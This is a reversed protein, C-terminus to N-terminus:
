TRFRISSYLYSITGMGYVCKNNKRPIQFLIIFSFVYPLFLLYPSFKAKRKRLHAYAQWDVDFLRSHVDALLGATRELSKYAM